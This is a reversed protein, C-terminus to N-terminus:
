NWTVFNFIIKYSGLRYLSMVQLDFILNFLEFLQVFGNSLMLNFPFMFYFDFCLIIQGM